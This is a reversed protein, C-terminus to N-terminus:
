DIKNLTLTQTFKFSAHNKTRRKLNCGLCALVCNNQYHGLTNNIRELSWRMQKSTDHISSVGKSLKNGTGSYICDIYSCVMYKETLTIDFPKECYFCKGNSAMFMKLFSYITFYHNSYLSADIYNYSDTHISKVSNNADNISSVHISSTDAHNDKVVQTKFDGKLKNRDQSKYSGIRYAVHRCFHIFHELDHKDVAMTNRKLFALLKKNSPSTDPCEAFQWKVVDEYIKEITDFLIYAHTPTKKKITLPKHKCTSSPKASSSSLMVIKKNDKNIYM